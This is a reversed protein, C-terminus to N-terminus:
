KTDDDNYKTVIDECLVKSKRHDRPAQDRFAGLIGEGGWGALMLRWNLGKPADIPGTIIM